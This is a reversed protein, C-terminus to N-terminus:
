PLADVSQQEDPAVDRATLVRYWYGDAVYEIFLSNRGTVKLITGLLIAAANGLVEYTVGPMEDLVTNYMQEALQVADM